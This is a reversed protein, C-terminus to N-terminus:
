AGPVYCSFLSFPKLWVARPWRTTAVRPWLRSCTPPPFSLVPLVLVATRTNTGSRVQRWGMPWVLKETDRKVDDNSRIACTSVAEVTKKVEAISTPIFKAVSKPVLKKAVKIAAVLGGFKKKGEKRTAAASAASTSTGHSAGTNVEVKGEGMDIQINSDLGAMAELDMGADTDAHGRRISAAEVACLLALLVVYKM